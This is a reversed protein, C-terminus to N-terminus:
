SSQMGRDFRNAEDDNKEPEAFDISKNLNKTSHEISNFYAKIAKKKNLHELSLSQEKFNDDQMILMKAMHHSIHMNNLEDESINENLNVWKRFNQQSIPQDLKSLRNIIKGQRKEKKQMEDIQKQRFDSIHKDIVNVSIMNGNKSEQYDFNMIGKVGLNNDFMNIEDYKQDVKEQVQLKIMQKQILEEAKNQDQVSFNAM